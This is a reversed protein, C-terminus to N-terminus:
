LTTDSSPHASEDYLVESQEDAVSAEVVVESDGVQPEAPYEAEAEVQEPQAEVQELQVAGPQETDLAADEGIPTADVAGNNEGKKKAKAALGFRAARTLRKVAEDPAVSSEKSPRERRPPEYPHARTQERLTRLTSLSVQKIPQYSEEVVDTTRQYRRSQLRQAKAKMMAYWRSPKRQSIPLKVDEVTATRMMMFHKPDHHNFTRWVMFELQERSLNGLSAFEAAFKTQAEQLESEIPTSLGLLARRASFEDAFVVNCATDNIWEIHSPGYGDFLRLIDKTNLDTMLGYLNIVSPRREVTIEADKREEDTNLDLDMSDKPVVGFRDVRSQRKQLEEETIKLQEAVPNYVQIGFKEARMRRKEQEEQATVDFGTQFGPRPNEPVRFPISKPVNPARFGSYKLDEVNIDFDDGAEPGSSTAAGLAAPQASPEEPPPAQVSPDESPPASPDSIATSQM